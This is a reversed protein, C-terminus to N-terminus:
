ERFSLKKLHKKRTDFTNIQVETEELKFFLDKKLKTDWRIIHSPFKSGQNMNLPLIIRTDSPNKKDLFIHRHGSKIYSEFHRSHVKVLTEIESQHFKRPSEELLQKVRLDPFLFHYMEFLENTKLVHTKPESRSAILKRVEQHVLVCFNLFEDNKVNKLDIRVQGFCFEKKYPKKEGSLRDIYSERENIMGNLIPTTQKILKDHSYDSELLYEAVIPAVKLLQM